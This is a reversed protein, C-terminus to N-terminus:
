AEHHAIIRLKSKNKKKKEGMLKMPIFLVVYVIIMSLYATDAGSGNTFVGNMMRHLYFVYVFVGGISNDLKIMKILGWPLLIGLIITGIFGFDLCLMGIATTFGTGFHTGLMLDSDFIFDEDMGLFNRFTRTGMFTNNLSDALGYNFTIMSHGFYYFLSDSGGEGMEGFRSITIALMYLVMVGGSILALRTLANKSKPPIHDKYILYIAIVLLVFFLLAGRAAIQIYKLAQDLVILGLLAIGIKDRGRRIWNFAGIIAVNLFWIAYNRTIRELLTQSHWAETAHFDAYSDAANEQVNSLSFSAVNYDASLMNVILCFVYFYCIYDIIKNQIPTYETVNLIEKERRFFIRNFIIFALFLYLFPWLQLHYLNPASMYVFFCLVAVFTWISIILFGCDMKHYKRWYWIFLIIYLLSNLLAYLM